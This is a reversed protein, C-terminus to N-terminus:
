LNISTYYLLFNYLYAFIKTRRLFYMTCKKEVIRLMLGENIIIFAHATLILYSRLICLQNEACNM